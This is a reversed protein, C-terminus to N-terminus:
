TKEKGNLAIEVKKGIIRMEEHVSMVLPMGYLLAVRALFEKDDSIFAFWENGLRLTEHVIEERSLEKNDAFKQIDITWRILKGILETLLERRNAPLSSFALREFEELITRVRIQENSNREIIRLWQIVISAKTICFHLNVADRYRPDFKQLIEEDM